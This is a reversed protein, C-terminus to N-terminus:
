LYLLTQIVDRSEFLIPFCDYVSKGFIEEKAMMIVIPSYVM